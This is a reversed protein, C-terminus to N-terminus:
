ESIDDTALFLQTLIELRSQLKNIEGKSELSREVIFKSIRKKSANITLIKICEKHVPCTKMIFYEDKKSNRSRKQGEQIGSNVVQMMEREGSPSVTVNRLLGVPM